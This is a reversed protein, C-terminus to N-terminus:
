KDTRTLMRGSLKNTLGQGDLAVTGNVVVAAAGEAMTQPKRYDAEEPSPFRYRELDIVAIDAFDGERLRGRRVLGFHDAPLSTNRRVIEEVSIGARRYMNMFAPFGGYRQLEYWFFPDFPDGMIRDTGVSVYPNAMIVPSHDRGFDDRVPGGLWFTYNSDDGTLDLMTDVPDADGRERAIDAISRGELAPDDSLVIYVKEMDTKFKPCETRIAQRGEATHLAAKVGEVGQDFFTDTLAMISQILKDKRNCHGTSRPITDIRIPLGEEIAKRAIEFADEADSRLHSIQVKVGTERSVKIMEEVAENVGIWHRLHATVTGGYEAVIRACDIIEETKAYRSPVYDLGFSLGWAGQEMGDRIIREIAKKEDPTPPRDHAGNMVYQRITGHGLLVGLNVATGTKEAASIYGRFTDWRPFDRKFTRQNDPSILGNNYFYDVIYSENGPSVSHGCNGNITTTVGQRLFLEYHNDSFLTLEEHVHPDIFGPIVTKGRADIELKGQDAIAPAIRAVTDGSVAVDAIFGPSGSGDIVTGGRIILDYNM